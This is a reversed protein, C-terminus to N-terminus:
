CRETFTILINTYSQDILRTNISKGATSPDQLSRTSEHFRLAATRRRVHSDQWRPPCAVHTTADGDRDRISIPSEVVDCQLSTAQTHKVLADTTRSAYIKQNTGRAHDGDGALARGVHGSILRQALGLDVRQAQQSPKQLRFGEFVCGGDMFEEGNEQREQWSQRSSHATEPPTKVIDVQQAIDHGMSM